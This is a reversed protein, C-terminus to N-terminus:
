PVQGTLAALQWATASLAAQAQVVAAAATLHDREANLLELTTRQGARVELQLSALAQESATLQLNAARLAAESSRLAAWTGLVSSHLQAQVQALRAEARRTAARAADIRGSVGGATFLTWTGSIGITSGQSAYGPLFEDHVTSARATLALAPLREGQAM